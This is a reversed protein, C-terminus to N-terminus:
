WIRKKAAHLPRKKLFFYKLFYKKIICLDLNEKVQVYTEHLYDISGARNRFTIGLGSKTKNNHRPNLFDMIKKFFSFITKFIFGCFFFLVVSVSPRKQLIDQLNEAFYVSALQTRFQM